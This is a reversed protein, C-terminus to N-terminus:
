GEEGSEDIIRVVEGEEVSNVGKTLIWEGPELGSKILVGFRSLQRVEVDRRSLKKSTEDIVWVCSRKADGQSFVATAWGVGLSEPCLSSNM